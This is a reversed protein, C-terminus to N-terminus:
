PRRLTDQEEWTALKEVRLYYEKRLLTYEELFGDINEESIETKAVLDMCREDLNGINQRLSRKLAEDGFKNDIIRDLDQWKSMYQFELRKYYNLDKRLQEKRKRLEESRSKLTEIRAGWQDATAVAESIKSDNFRKVYERLQNTEQLLEQLDNDNLLEINSPFEIAKGSDNVSPRLSRDPKAPLEPSAM